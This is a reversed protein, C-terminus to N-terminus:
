TPLVQTITIPLPVRSMSMRRIHGALAPHLLVTDFGSARQLITNM